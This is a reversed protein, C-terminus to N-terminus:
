VAMDVTMAGDNMYYEESNIKRLNEIQKFARPKLIYLIDEDNDGLCPFPNISLLKKQNDITTYSHTAALSALLITKEHETIFSTEYENTWGEKLNLGDYTAIYARTM